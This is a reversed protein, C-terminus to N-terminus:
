LMERIRRAAEACKKEGEVLAMRVYDAGPNIQSSRDPRGLYAGPLVTINCREFLKRSFAEGGGPVRAWVCFGADPRTLPLHGDLVSFFADFQRRYAARNQAVHAEDGWAAASATQIPLPITSGFYTRAKLYGSLLAADGAVFGSRAGPLNSRKSLSHFALLGTYDDHGM